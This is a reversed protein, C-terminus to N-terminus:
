AHSTTTQPIGKGICVTEAVPMKMQSILFCPASVLLREAGDSLMMILILFDQYDIGNVM